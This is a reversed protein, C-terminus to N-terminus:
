DGCKSNLLLNRLIRGRSNVSCIKRLLTSTHLQKVLVFGRAFYPSQSYAGDRSVLTPDLLEQAEMMIAWAPPNMRLLHPLPLHFRKQSVQGDVAAHGLARRILREPRDEKEKAV